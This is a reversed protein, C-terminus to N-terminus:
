DDGASPLIPTVTAGKEVGDRDVNLILTAGPELGERVETWIWNRLGPTIVRDEVIDRANVVFVRNGERIAETPIRPVGSREDLIVEIDASYGPLMRSGDESEVFEVEVDVTRAQKELDLVYPAVRRVRGPFVRDPFADLSIKAAMGVAIDPADVEDIPASVYLCSTDMLDVAPPTPIGVPSPTVFEGVEGNVEAVVGSFPARLRTQDLAAQAVDLQSRSVDVASLAASCAARKALADSEASDVAEESALNTDRLQRIREAERGAREAVICAQEWRAEASRVESAALQAQAQLDVNWFEMLIQGREVVDGETVPMRDIQGGLRPSIGARRCAEITGAKTNAVTSQVNGAAVISVRVDPPNPRGLRWALVLLVVVAIAAYALLSHRKEAM